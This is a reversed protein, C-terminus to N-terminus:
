KRLLTEIGEVNESPNVLASLMGDEFYAGTLRAVSNTAGYIVSRFAIKVSTDVGELDQVVHRYYVNKDEPSRAVSAALIELPTNTPGLSLDAHYQSTSFLKGIDNYDLYWPFHGKADTEDYINYVLTDEKVLNVDPCIVSGKFFTFEYYDDGNYSVISTSSPTIPLMACASSVGYKDDVVIAYIAVIKIFDSVIALKRESFRFPVYIRCEKVALLANGERKIFQKVYDGDRTLKSFDM